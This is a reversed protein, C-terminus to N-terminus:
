NFEKEKNDDALYTFNIRELEKELLKKISEYCVFRLYYEQSHLYLESKYPSTNTGRMKAFAKVQKVIRKDRSNFIEQIQNKPLYEEGVNSSIRLPYASRALKVPNVSASSFVKDNKVGYVQMAIGVIPPYYPNYETIAAIIIMDAGLENALNLAQQPNEINTIGDKAMQALTRNVPIVAFGRVQQLESYLIDTVKLTDLNQEGSYNLVPALVVTMERPYPSRLSIDKKQSSCGALFALAVAVGALLSVIRITRVRKIKLM